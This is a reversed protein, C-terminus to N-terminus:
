VNIWNNNIALAVAGAKNKVELKKIIKNMYMSVTGKSLSLEEAVQENKLGKAVQELVEWERRTLLDVPRQAAVLTKYHNNLLYQIAGDYISYGGDLITEIKYILEKLTFDSTIMGRLPYSLVEIMEEKTYVSAIILTKETISSIKEIVKLDPSICFWLVVLDYNALVKSYIEMNNINDIEISSYMKMISSITVLADTNEQEGILLIKPM